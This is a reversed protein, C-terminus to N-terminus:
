SASYPLNVAATVVTAVLGPPSLHFNPKCFKM